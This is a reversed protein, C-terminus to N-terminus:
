FPKTKLICFCCAINCYQVRHSQAFFALRLELKHNSGQSIENCQARSVIIGITLLLMNKDVQSFNESYITQPPDQYRSGQPPFSSLWIRHTSTSRLRHHRHHLYHHLNHDHHHRHRHRHHHHHFGSFSSSLLPEKDRSARRAGLVLLVCVKALIIISIMSVTLIM